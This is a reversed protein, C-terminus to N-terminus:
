RGHSPEPDEAVVIRAPTARNMARIPDADGDALRELNGLHRLETPIVITGARHDRAYVALAEAGTKSPLWAVAEIGRSRAEEVQRAIAARGATELDDPDLEDPTREKTGDGSWDSPLPDGLVTASDWDYLLLRAEDRVALDM